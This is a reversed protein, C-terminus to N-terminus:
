KSNNKKKKITRIKMKDNNSNNDKIENDYTESNYVTGKIMNGFDDDPYLWKNKTIIILEVINGDDVKSEKNAFDTNNLHEDSFEVKIASLIPENWEETTEIKNNLLSFLKKIIIFCIVVIGLTYFKEM